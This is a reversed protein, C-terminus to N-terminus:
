KPTLFALVYTLLPFSPFSFSLPSFSTKTMYSQEETYLLGTQGKSAEISSQKGRLSSPNIILDEATHNEM